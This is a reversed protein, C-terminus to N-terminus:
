LRFVNKKHGLSLILGPSEREWRGDRLTFIPIGLIENLFLFRVKNIGDCLSYFVM